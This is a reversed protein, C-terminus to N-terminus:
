YDKKKNKSLKGINITSNKGISSLNKKYIYKKM